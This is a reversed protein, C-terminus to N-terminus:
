YEKSDLLVDVDNRLEEIKQMFMETEKKIYIPLFHEQLAMMYPKNSQFFWYPYTNTNLEEKGMGLKPLPKADNGKDDTKQLIKNGSVFEYIDRLDKDLRQEAKKNIIAQVTEPTQM